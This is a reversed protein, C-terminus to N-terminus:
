TTGSQTDEIGHLTNRLKISGGTPMFICYAIFVLNILGALWAFIWTWSLFATAVVVVLYWWGSAGTDKIRRVTLPISYIAMVIGTMLPIGFLFFAQAGISLRNFSPTGFFLSVAAGVLASGGFLIVSKWIFESRPATGSFKLWDGPLTKLATDFTM